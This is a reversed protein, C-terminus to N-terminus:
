CKSPHLLPYDAVLSLLTEAIYDVDGEDMRTHLPLTLCCEYYAEMEPFFSAIEECGIAPHRYIPMYHVQTGIGRKHLSQMLWARDVTADLQVVMLHFASIDDFRDTFLWDSPLKERYRQVLGRRKQIFRDVKKLQSLGLAAQMENMHFNGSLREVYYFGPYSPADVPQHIGNNRGRLLAEYLTSDNTTVVGGEGTTIVKAPHFSFLTMDSFACSGVKHGFRDYSGFAHAGDEIIFSNAYEIHNYLRKVDLPLGAFHVPLIIEKGRTKDLSFNALALETDMAGTTRDIDVFVPEAGKQVASGVTSIFTNPTTIVRDGPEVALAYMVGMLASSGSNFAVAYEAGVYSAVAEEFASVLDGRTILPQKLSEAVSSIDEEDIEQCCYPIFPKEKM